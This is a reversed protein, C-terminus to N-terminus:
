PGFSPLPFPLGTGEGVQDASPAAISLAGDYTATVTVKIDAQTGAKLAMAMKATRLDNKRTWVDITIDATGESPLPAPSSLKALDEPSIHISVHYCDVDGCKEDALKTPPTPLKALAKNIEDIVVQPNMSAVAGASAGASAFASASPAEIAGAPIPIKSYKTNGQALPGTLKYYIAGDAVIVEAGTNLFAPALGTAKLKQGAVDVDLTATTGALDLQSTSGTGMLDATVKGSLDIQLHITKVDKLALASKSLIEKPDTLAPATPACAAVLVALVAILAASRRLM